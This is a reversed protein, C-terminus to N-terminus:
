RASVYTILNGHSDTRYHPAPPASPASLVGKDTSGTPSLLLSAPARTREKEETPLQKELDPMLETMALLHRHRTLLLSSLLPVLTSLGGLPVIQFEAALSDRGQGM